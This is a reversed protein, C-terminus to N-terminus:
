DNVLSDLENFLFLLKNFLLMFGGSRRAFAIIKSLSCLDLVKRCHSLWKQQTLPLFQHMILMRIKKKWNYQM